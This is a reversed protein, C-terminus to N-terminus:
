ALLRQLAEAVPKSSAPNQGTVLRGDSVVFAKWNEVKEYLGGLRKLEDEVLFPVVKTLHVAEEEGNTFGTVRKGKVLPRGQFQVRHLVGPAHCVAAVPKGSSCFAEILAISRPNEALDWMPGNGGPYFVADYDSAEVDGLRLTNALVAQAAPDQKFRRTLETEGEPTDSVPDLPPQRGEPSAVIVAAGADLFTFYPAAFEELWFGTKRGTNGLKDHSTLVM